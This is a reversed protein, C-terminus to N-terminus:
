RSVEFSGRLWAAAIHAFFYVSAAIILVTCVMDALKESFPRHSNMLCVGQM